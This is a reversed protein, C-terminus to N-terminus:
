TSSKQTKPVSLVALLAVARVLMAVQMLVYVGVARGPTSTWNSSKLYNVVAILLFGLVGIGAVVALRNLAALVHPSLKSTQTKHFFLMGCAAFAFAVLLQGFSRTSLLMRSLSDMAEHRKHLLVISVVMSVIIILASLVIAARIVYVFKSRRINLLFVTWLYILLHFAISITASGIKICMESVYTFYRMALPLIFIITGVVDVLFVVNRLNLEAEGAVVLQYFVRCSYGLVFLVGSLLTWNFATLAGSNFAQNWPGYEGVVHAVVASKDPLGEYAVRLTATANKWDHNSIFLVDLEQPPPGDPIGPRKAPFPERFPNGMLSNYVKVSPLVITRSPPFGRGPLTALLELAVPWMQSYSRYHCM